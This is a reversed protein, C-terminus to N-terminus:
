CFPLGVCSDDHRTGPRKSKRYHTLCGDPTPRQPASRRSSKSPNASSFPRHTSKLYIETLFTLRCMSVLDYRSVTSLEIDGTHPNGRAWTPSSHVAHGLRAPRRLGAPHISRLRPLECVRASGLRVNRQRCIPFYPSMYSKRGSCFVATDLGAPGAHDESSVRLPQRRLVALGPTLVLYAVPGALGVVCSYSLPRASGIM